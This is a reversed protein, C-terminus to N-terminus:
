HSSRPNWTARSYALMFSRPMPPIPGYIKRASACMTHRSMPQKSRIRTRTPFHTPRRAGREGCHWVQRPHIGANTRGPASPASLPYAGDVRRELDERKVIGKEICLTALSTLMREFYGALEAM